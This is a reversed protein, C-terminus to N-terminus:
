GLQEPELLWITDIKLTKDGVIVDLEGDKGTAKAGASRQVVGAVRLEVAKGLKLRNFLAVDAPDSRDLMVEGTLKIRIRDVPQGDVKQIALPETEYQSRDLLPQQGGEPQQEEPKVEEDSPGDAQEFEREPPTAEINQRRRETLEDDHDQQEQAVIQETTSSM